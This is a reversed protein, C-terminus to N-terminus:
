EPQLHRLAAAVTIFSGLILFRGNPCSRLEANLAGTVNPYDADTIIRAVTTLLPLSDALSRDERTFVMIADLNLAKLTPLLAEVAHRNHAADLWITAEGFQVKQLRGSVVTSEIAKKAQEMSDNILGKELLRRVANLALTANQKQHDGPMAPQLASDPAV